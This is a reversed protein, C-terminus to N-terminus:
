LQYMLEKLLKRQNDLLLYGTILILMLLELNQVLKEPDLM